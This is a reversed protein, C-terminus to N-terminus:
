VQGKELLPHVCSGVTRIWSLSLSVFKQHWCVSWNQLTFRLLLYLGLSCVVGFGCLSSWALSRVPGNWWSIQNISLLELCLGSTSSLTSSLIRTKVCCRYGLWLRWSSSLLSTSVHLYPATDLSLLACTAHLFPLPWAFVMLTVMGLWPHLHTLM